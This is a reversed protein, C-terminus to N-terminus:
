GCRRYLYIISLYSYVSCNGGTTPCSGVGVEPYNKPSLELSNYLRDILVPDADPDGIKFEDPLNAFIVEFCDVNTFNVQVMSREQTPGLVLPVRLGRARARLERRLLSGIDVYESM